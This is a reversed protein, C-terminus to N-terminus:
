RSAPTKGPLRPFKSPAPDDSLLCKLWSYLSTGIQKYGETNPHVADNEPFGDVPDLNLQIPIIFVNDKERGGFERLQRQVLAHQVRKWNWRPFGKQSFAAERANPPPTLCLGIRADPAAKRFAKLLTDANQFMFDMTDNVLKNNEPAYSADFCDNIGLLIVIVDPPAGNCIERLYRPIDLKPKGNNETFVFPSTGRNPEAVQGEVYNTVFTSWRWGSYGEFRVRDSAQIKGLMEWKPNGPEDLWRALEVPYVQAATLSDGVILLRLRKSRDTKRGAVKLLASAKALTKRGASDKVELTLPYSGSQSALPKVRWRRAQTKGLPCTVWFTYAEPTQTCVVNDFYISMEVGPAAYIEPPLVPRLDNQGTASVVRASALSFLLAACTAARLASHRRRPKRIERKAILTSAYM